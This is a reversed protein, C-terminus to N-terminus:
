KDKPKRPRRAGAKAEEKTVEGDKNKDLRKFLQEFRNATGPRTAPKAEEKTVEGDKNKDFRAVRKWNEGAEEKTIKGDSNKDLRKFAREPIGGRNGAGPRQRQVEELTLFGDKNKDLRDFVKSLREGAEDKSIKGDKNKDLKEFMEKANRRQPRKPKDEAQSVGVTLLSVACLASWFQARRM